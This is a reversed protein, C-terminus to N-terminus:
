RKKESTRSVSHGGPGQRRAYIGTILVNLVNHAAHQRELPAAAGKATKDDSGTRTHSVTHQTHRQQWGMRQGVQTGHRCPLCRRTSYPQDHIKSLIQKAATGSCPPGHTAPQAAAATGCSAVELGFAVCSSGSSWQVLANVGFEYVDYAGFGSVAVSGGTERGRTGFKWQAARRPSGLQLEAWRISSGNCHNRHTWCIRAHGCVSRSCPTRYTRWRNGQGGGGDKCLTHHHGAGTLM